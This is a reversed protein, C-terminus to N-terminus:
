TLFLLGLGIILGTFLLTVVCYGMIDKAGLGAIALAPLAWFPQIMNTWADGWAIAMAIVSPEVGLATGAPMMIPAQVAWQGGGSPVFINVFGASLFTFLPFTDQTSIHVFFLSLLGALSDGSASAGVMMGMIGAYFPFQLLIGAASKTAKEIAKVYSLPTKHFLIGVFLFIMNIINLNLSGGNVFHEIIYVIGFIGIAFSVLMSHELYSAITHDNEHSIVEQEQVDELLKSDVVITDEKSPHILALLFPLLLAIVIVIAMNYGSFITESVPIAQTLVGATTKVLTDGGSAVALPVSGSLGGHWVVFGSYAAAILLRYDVNKINKAIEKAFIAPIILGFGFSIWSTFLGLFTIMVIASFPGSPVSALKKFFNQVMPASALAQGLVLGLAVQMSFSLLSWAGNGWHNIMEMPSQQTLPMAVGFVILTLIVVLVFSDPLMKSALFACGDTFKRLLFM